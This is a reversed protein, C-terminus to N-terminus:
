KSRASQKDRHKNSSILLEEILLLLLQKRGEGLTIPTEETIINRVLFSLFVLSGVKDINLVIGKLGGLDFCLDFLLCHSLPLSLTLIVIIILLSLLLTDSEEIILLNLIVGPVIIFSIAQCVILLKHPSSQREDKIDLREARM